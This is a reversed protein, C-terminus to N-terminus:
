DPSLIFKVEVVRHIESGDVERVAQVRITAPTDAAAFTDALINTAVGGVVPEPVAAFNGGGDHRLVNLRVGSEASYLAQAWIYDEASAASGISAYRAILVGFMGVVVIMFIATILGMGRHNTMIERFM